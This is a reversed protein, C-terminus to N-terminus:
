RYAVLFLRRFPFVVRGDARAPFEARIRERCAAVFGERAADDPLAELFPRLGTSRYWEVVADADPMVHLYETLWVDLRACRPALLDYYHAADLTRWERVKPLIGARAALERMIRHPAADRNAPMQVALVRARELLSPFLAEHDEVWHLAANSFVVDRRDEGAAWDAIDGAVWDWEPHRQRARGIMAPSADLGTVAALPFRAAIAETSNGPGCGLDIIGAAHELEVRAALDRAPRTREEEFRLYQRSDWDPM